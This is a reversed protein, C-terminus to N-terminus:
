GGTAVIARACALGSRVAAELTAPYPSDVYDGALWLGDIATRMAPRALHATCAFTARKEMILRHWRPPGACPVIQRFEGDIRRALADHDLACEAESASVVAAIMGPPGGLAGRDFFWQACAGRAGVMPYRLRVPAEYQLYATLIPQHEFAAVQRSLPELTEHGALLRPLQHPAVALVLHRWRRHDGALGFGAHDRLLAQIRRGTSVEGGHRRVFQAAPEPFLESLGCRPLLLDAADRAGALTDRLVALFVQASASEAPTNLASVCLADWVMECIESGQRERRLLAGVTEDRPLRFDRAKMGQIFAIASLRQRWPLGAAGLLAALLHFPAPWAPAALHLHGPYHLTIPLRRLAIAPDVGVTQMMGLTERYAGVLIHQGNDLALGDLNLSRARGGLTKGAEFVSAAIGSRALEVAAAMGAYGGGIIAVSM